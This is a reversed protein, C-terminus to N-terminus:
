SGLDERDQRWYIRQLVGGVFWFMFATITGGWPTSYAVGFISVLVFIGYGFAVAKWFPDSERRFTRKAMLWYLLYLASYLLVGLIGWEVLSLTLQSARSGYWTLDLSQPLNLVAFRSGQAIGPGLGLWLTIGTASSSLLQMTLRIAEFRGPYLRGGEVYGPSRLEQFVYTPDKLMDLPSYTRSGFSAVGQLNDWKIIVFALAMTLLLVGWSRRRGLIRVLVYLTVLPLVFFFARSGSLAPVMFCAVAAVWYRTRRTASAYWALGGLFGLASLSILGPALGFTGTVLDPPLNAMFRQVLQVPIQMLFLFTALRICNGLFREDWSFAILCYFLVAFRLYPRMGLIINIIPTSNAVGSLVVVFLWLLLLVAQPSQLFKDGGRNSKTLLLRSTLMLILGDITWLGIVPVIGYYVAGDLVFACLIIAVLSAHLDVLLVILVPILLMLYTAYHVPMSTVSVGVVISGLLTGLLVIKIRTHNQESRNVHLM